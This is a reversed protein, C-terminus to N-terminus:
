RHHGQECAELRHESARFVKMRQIAKAPGSQELGVAQQDLSNALVPLKPRRPPKLSAPRQGDFSGDTQAERPQKSPLTGPRLSAGDQLFAPLTLGMRIWRRDLKGLQKFMLCTVQSRRM